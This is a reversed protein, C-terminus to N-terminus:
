RASVTLRQIARILAGPLHSYGWNAALCGRFLRQGHRRSPLWLSGHPHAGSVAFAHQEAVARQYCADVDEAASVRPLQDQGLKTSVWSSPLVRLFADVHLALALRPALEAL